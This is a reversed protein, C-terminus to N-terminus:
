LRRRMVVRKSIDVGEAEQNLLAALETDLDSKAVEEFEERRYFPANFPLHRFTTLTIENYQGQKSWAIMARLLMTGLGKRVHRPHVSLEKIHVRRGNTTVWGFGVVTDDTSAVAVWLREGRQARDLIARDTATEQNKLPVDDTSFMSAAALEVAQLEAPSRGRAIGIHYKM